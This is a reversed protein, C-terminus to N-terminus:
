LLGGERAERFAWACAIPALVLGQLGFFAELVVMTGLLVSAPVKTKHGVFQANLVYELKHIALLFVLAALAANTSVTLAALLIAANSALNGVIPVMGAVLTLGVLVGSFPVKVGAFPLVAFLFVATLVTNVAAIALQAVVIDSFARVYNHGRGRIATLWPSISAIPRELAALIGIISGIFLHAASRAVEHGWRQLSAAHSRMSAALGHQLEDTSAPLKSSIWPPLTTRLRDLTDALLDLLSAVAASPDLRSRVALTGAYAIACLLALVLILAAPKGLRHPVRSGVVRLAADMLLYACTAVLLLGTIHAKFALLLAAIFAAGTWAERRRGADIHGSEFLKM